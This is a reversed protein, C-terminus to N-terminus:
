RSGQAPRIQQKCVEGIQISVNELLLHFGSANEKFGLVSLGM